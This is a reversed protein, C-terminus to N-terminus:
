WRMRRRTAFQQPYSWRQANFLNDHHQASRTQAIGDRFRRLHYAALQPSSYSKSPQMMMRGLIGDVIENGYKDLIWQPIDRPFNNTQPTGYPILSYTVTLTDDESLDSNLVIVGPEAMTCGVENDDSNLLRILSNITATSDPDVEYSTRTTVGSFNVDEQWVQSDKLFETLTRWLELYIIEDRAGPLGTRADQLIRSYTAATSAVTSAYLGRLAELEDTYVKYQAAAHDANYWAKDAQSYMRFLVGALLAQYADDIYTTTIYTSPTTDAATLGAIRLAEVRVNDAVNYYELEFNADRALPIRTKLNSMLRAYTSAPAAAAESRALDLYAAYRDTHLKAADPSSWPKATQGYMRALTGHMITQYNAVYEDDTL